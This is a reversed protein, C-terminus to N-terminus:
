TLGGFDPGKPLLRQNIAIARKRKLIEFQGALMTDEKQMAPLTLARGCSRNRVLFSKSRTLFRVGWASHLVM